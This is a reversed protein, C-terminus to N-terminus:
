LFLFFSPYAENLLRLEYAILLVYMAIAAFLLNRARFVSFALFNWCAIFFFIGFMSLLMKVAVFEFNGLGLFYKMFPNLEEGGQLLLLLTFTADTCSLTILAIACLMEPWGFVDLMAHKQDDERRSNKRRPKLACVVITKGSFSRRDLPQRQPSAYDLPQKNIAARPM